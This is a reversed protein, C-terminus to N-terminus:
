KNGGTYKNKWNSLNRGTLSELEEIDRRFIGYAFKKDEESMEPRAVETRLVPKLLEQMFGPLYKKVSKVRDKGFLNFLGKLRVKKHKNIAETKIDTYNEDVGIFAFVDKMTGMLDKKLDDLWIIKIQEKPFRQMYSKLQEAYMSGEIYTRYVIQNKGGLAAQDKLWEKLGADGEFNVNKRQEMNLKLADTFSNKENGKACRMLWGSFARDVPDRFCFIIKASPFHKKIRDAVFPLFAYTPTADGIAKENAAHAFFSPYKALDDEYNNDLYRTEKPESMCVDPHQSLYYHLSTTATKPPGILFFGPLKKVSM